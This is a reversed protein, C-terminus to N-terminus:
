EDEREVVITCETVLAALTGIAAWVPLLAAGIVGLTLPIEFFTSGENNKIIIRRLGLSKAAGYLGKTWCCCTRPFGANEATEVLAGSDASTVFINNLDVPVDGAALIVEIPVTTTIGVARTPDLNEPLPPPLIEKEM